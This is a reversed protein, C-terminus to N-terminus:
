ANHSRAKNFVVDIVSFKGHKDECISMGLEQMTDHFPQDSTAHLLTSDSGGAIGHAAMAKLIQMNRLIRDKKKLTEPEYLDCGNPTAAGNCSEYDEGALARHHKLCTNCLEM